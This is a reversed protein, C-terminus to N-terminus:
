LLELSITIMFSMNILAIGNGLQDRIELRGLVPNPQGVEDILTCGLMMLPGQDKCHPMNNIKLSPYGNGTKLSPHGNGTKLSPHGNGTKLSPHGNGTENFVLNVCIEPPRAILLHVNNSERYAM